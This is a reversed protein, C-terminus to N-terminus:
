KSYAWKKILVQLVGAIPVAILMGLVGAFYGMVSVSLLVFLPHLGTTTGVIKPYIYNSDLQQVLFLTIVAVIAKSFGQNSLAVVFAPIMGFFPGFYPIVNLLGGILGIIVAFKINLLSLAISSLLAVILSDILAGKLFTSVVKNIDYLTETVLGHIRQPLLISLLKQWMTLFFEKDKLLYISAVVGLLFNIVYKLIVSAYNVIKETSLYRSFWQSLVQSSYVYEYLSQITANIDSTPLAGLMLIIFAFGISFLLFSVATYTILIALWRGKPSHSSLFTRSSSKLKNGVYDVPGNLIYAIILGIFLPLFAKLIYSIVHWFSFIIDGFYNNVMALGGPKLIILVM